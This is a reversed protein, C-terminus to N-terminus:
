ALAAEDAGCTAAAHRRRLLIAAAFLPVLWAVRAQYRDFVGSIMGCIVANGLIGFMALATACIMDNSRPNAEQKRRLGAGAAVIVAWGLLYCGFMVLSIPRLPMTRRAIGSDSYAKLDSYLPLRPSRDRPQVAYETIGVTFFQRVAAAGSREMQELGHTRLTGIVIPMQEAAIRAKDEGSMAAFGDMHEAGNWLFQNETMPMAPLFRCSEYQHQPCTERLYKEATRDGIMRALLFPPSYLTLGARQAVLGVAVHGAGGICIMAAILAAGRWDIRRALAGMAIFVALLGLAILLHSKHFLISAIGLAVWLAQEWRSETARYCGAMVVSLILLGAFIDPMVASAVAGAGALLGIGVVVLWREAMTANPALHRLAGAVAAVAVVAQLVPLSWIGLLSWLLVFIAGYYVSRADSVGDATSIGLRAGITRPAHHSKTGRDELHLLNTAARGAQFYGVTDPYLIPGRNLMAPALFALLAVLALVIEIPISRARTM